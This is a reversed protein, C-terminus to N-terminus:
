NIFNNDSGQYNENSYVLNNFSSPLNNQLDQAVFGVSRIGNELDEPKDNRIFTKTTLNNFVQLCDDISVPQQDDKFVSDSTSTFAPGTWNYYTTGTGNANIQFAVTASAINFKLGYGTNNATNATITVVGGSNAKIQFRGTSGSFLYLIADAGSNANIKCSCNTTNSNIQLNDGTGTGGICVKPTTAGNFFIKSQSDIALPVASGIFNSDL